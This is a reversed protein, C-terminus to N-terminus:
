SSTGDARKPVALSELCDFPEIELDALGLRKRIM